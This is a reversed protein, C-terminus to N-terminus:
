EMISILIMRMNSFSSNHVVIEQVFQVGCRAGGARTVFQQDRGQQVQHGLVGHAIRVGAVACQAAIARAHFQGGHDFAVEFASARRGSASGTSRAV